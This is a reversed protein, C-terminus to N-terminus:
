KVVVKFTKNGAKVLCVGTEAAIQMYNEGMGSFIVKGDAAAVTLEIGEAGRVIVSGKAGNVSLSSAMVDEIGSVSVQAHVSNSEGEEYVASVSYRHEGDTPNTAAYTTEEVPATNLREGNCYVNYGVLALDEPEAGALRLTVNDVMMLAGSTSVHRIAFRKAGEPLHCAVETWDDNYSMASGVKIFDEPLLSGTSYYCEFTEPNAELLAKVYFLATQRGGYLEPSIAWDDCAAGTYTLFAGISKSSNDAGYFLPGYGELSPEDMDVVFFSTVTENTNIGPFQFQDFGGTPAGDKDVFTWDCVGTQNWSAATEFTETYPSPAVNEMSPADWNLTVESGEAKATLNQVTPYIPKVVNVKITKSVNDDMNEDGENIVKVVYEVVDTDAVTFSQNFLGDKVAGSELSKISKSGALEGNKWLEVTLASLDKQGNNVVTFDIATSEGALVDADRVTASVGADNDTLNSVRIADMITYLYTHGVPRLAVKVNKGKYAALDVQVRAWGATSGMASIPGGYLETWNDSGVECIDVYMENDYEDTNIVYVNFSLTPSIANTSLDIMGTELRGSTGMAGYMAVFGNDGDSPKVDTFSQNTALIWQASFLLPTIKIVSSMSGDAFSERYSMKYPSGAYVGNSYGYDGVKGSESVPFVGYNFLEQGEPDVADYTFSNTSVSSLQKENGYSDVELIIYNAAPISVGSATTTVPDWTVKVKGDGLYEAVVNQPQAPAEDGVFIVRSTIHGEVGNLVPIFEYAVFSEASPTDNLKLTAGPAPNEFTKINEGDRLVSISSISSLNAGGVTKTPAKFEIDYSGNAAPTFTLAEVMEPAATAGVKTISLNTVHFDDIRNEALARVAFFYNGAYTSTFTGGYTTIDGNLEVWPVVVESLSEVTPAAGARLEMGEKFGWADASFTYVTNEELAIPPTIMWDDTTPSSEACNIWAYPPETQSAHWFSAGDENYDIFTLENDYGQTTTFQELYPVSKGEEGLSATFEYKSGQGVSNFPVIAYSYTGKDPATDTYTYENGPTPNNITHVTEGNRQIEIKTISTLRNGANTTVPATFDFKVTNTRGSWDPTAVVDMPAAPGDLEAGGKVDFYMLKILALFETSCGHVGIYYKGDTPVSFSENFYTDYKTIQTPPVITITMAEVTPANGAYFGIKPPFADPNGASVLSSFDYIKGAKLNLPISILWDNSGGQPSSLEAYMQYPNWGWTNGDNDKDIITMEDMSDATPFDKHYPVEGVGIISATVTAPQSAGEQNYALVTWTFKGKGCEDEVSFSQGQDPNTFSAIVNSGRLVEIKTLGSLPQGNFRTTPAKFSIAAVGDADEKQTVTFDSVKAPMDASMPASVKLNDVFLTYMDADSCGHVGLYYTGSTPAVFIGEVTKPTVGGYKTVPIVEINMADVSRSTGALVEIKEPYGDGRGWMDISVNYAKGGELQIGQTIMWDDMANESSWNILACSGESGEPIGIAWARDDNNANVILVTTPDDFTNYYTDSAAERSPAGNVKGTCPTKQMGASLVKSDTQKGSKAMLLMQSPSKPSLSVSSANMKSRDTKVSLRTQAIASTGLTLVLAAAMAKTLRQAM